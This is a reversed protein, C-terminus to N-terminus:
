LTRGSVPGIGKISRLREEKALWMPNAEIAATLQKDAASLRQELWAIHEQLDSQM